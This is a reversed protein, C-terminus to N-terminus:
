PGPTGGGCAAACAAVAAGCLLNFRAFIMNKQRRHETFDRPLDIAFAREALPAGEASASSKESRMASRITITDSIAMTVSAPAAHRSHSSRLFGVSLVAGGGARLAGASGAGRSFDSGM